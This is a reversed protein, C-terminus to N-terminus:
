RGLRIYGFGGLTCVDYGLSLGKLSITRQAGPVHRPQPPDRYRIVSSM